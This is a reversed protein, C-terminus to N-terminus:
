PNEGSRVRCNPHQHAAMYVSTDWPEFVEERPIEDNGVWRLDSANSIIDDDDEWQYKGLPSLIIGMNMASGSSMVQQFILM